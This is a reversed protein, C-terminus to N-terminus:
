GGRLRELARLGERRFDGDGVDDGYLAISASHFLGRFRALRLTDSDIAGYAAAFAAEAEAPLFTVAVMLDCAPDGRHVDGWDIVGRLRRAPGDVLLHSAYLDGHVLRSPRPARPLDELLPLWPDASPVLGHGALRALLDRLRPVRRDVDMRGLTDGPCDIGEPDVAHLAALFWGLPRAAAAREGEGLGARIAPEGELYRYGAFPWPFEETPRGLVVPVPVELPLKAAIRPLVACEATLLDAGMQRRPFRFVWDGDVRYVVNDWGEGLREVREAPVRPAQARILARALEADVVREALWPREM